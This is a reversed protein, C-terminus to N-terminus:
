QSYYQQEILTLSDFLTPSDKMLNPHQQKYGKVAQIEKNTIIFHPQQHNIKKPTVIPLPKIINIGKQEKFSQIMIMISYGGFVICIFCLFLSQQQKQWRKTALQMYKTFRKQSWLIGKAVSSAAKDTLKQTSINEKLSKM